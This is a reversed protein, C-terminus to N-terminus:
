QSPPHNRAQRGPCTTFFSRCNMRMCAYCSGPRPRSPCNHPSHSDRRCYGCWETGTWGQTNTEKWRTNQDRRGDTKNMHYDGQVRYNEPVTTPRVQEQRSQRVHYLDMKDGGLYESRSRELMRVFSDLTRCDQTYPTLDRQMPEPVARYLRQMIYTDKTTIVGFKKEMVTLRARMDCVYYRPNDNVNYVIRKLVEWAEDETSPGLNLRLMVKRFSDWDESVAVLLPRVLKAVSNEMWSLATSIRGEDETVCREVKRFFKSLVEDVQLSQLEELTLKDTHLPTTDDVVSVQENNPNKAHQLERKLEKVQKQLEELEVRQRNIIVMAEELMERATDGGMYGLKVARIM